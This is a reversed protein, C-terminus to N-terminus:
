RAQFRAIRRATATSCVGRTRTSLCCCTEIWMPFVRGDILVQAAFLGDAWSVTLSNRGNFFKGPGESADLARPVAVGNPRYKPVANTFWGPIEGAGVTMGNTSLTLTESCVNFVYVSGIAAM